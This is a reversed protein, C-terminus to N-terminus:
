KIGYISVVSYQAFNTASATVSLSTIAATSAWLGNTIFSNINAANTDNVNESAYPKNVSTSSYNSLYFQINSFCNATSGGGNSNGIYTDTGGSVTAATGTGVLQKFTRGTTIGNFSIYTGDQLNASTTRTSLVILLDIYNQPISTFDISAAGGAGVTVTNILQVYSM